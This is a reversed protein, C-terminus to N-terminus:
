ADQGGLIEKVKEFLARGTCDKKEFYRYPKVQELYAVVNEEPVITYFVVPMEPSKRRLERALAIGVYQNDSGPIVNPDIAGDKRLRIDAVLLTPQQTATAVADLCERPSAVALVDLSDIRCLDMFDSVPARFYVDDVVLIWAASPVNETM